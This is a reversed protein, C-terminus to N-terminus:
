DEEPKKEQLPLQQQSQPKERDPGSAENPARAAWVPIPMLLPMASLPVLIKTTAKKEKVSEIKRILFSNFLAFLVCHRALLTKVIYVKADPHESIKWVAQNWTPHM